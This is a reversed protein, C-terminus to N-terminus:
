QMRRVYSYCYDGIKVFNKGESRTHGIMGFGSRVLVSRTEVCFTAFENASWGMRRLYDTIKEKKGLPPLSAMVVDVCLRNPV